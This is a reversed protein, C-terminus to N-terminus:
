VYFFFKCRRLEGVGVEVVIGGVWFLVRRDWLKFIFGLREVVLSLLEEKLVVFVFVREGRLLFVIGVCELVLIDERKWVFCSEKWKWIWGLVSGVVWLGCNWCVGYESCNVFWGVCVMVGWWIKVEIEGVRLDFNNLLFFGIEVIIGWFRSM